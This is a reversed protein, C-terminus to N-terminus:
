PSPTTDGLQSHKDNPRTCDLWDAARVEEFITRIEQPPDICLTRYTDLFGLWGTRDRHAMDVACSFARCERYKPPRQVTPSACNEPNQAAVLWNRAGTEPRWNEIDTNQRGLSLEFACSVPEIACRRRRRGSYRFLQLMSRLYTLGTATSFPAPFSRAYESGIEPERSLAALSGAL